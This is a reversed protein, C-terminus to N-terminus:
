FANLIGLNIVSEAGAIAYIAFIQGLIDDFSLSSVWILFTIALLMISNKM